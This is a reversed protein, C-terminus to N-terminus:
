LAEMQSLTRVLVLNRHRGVITYLRDFGYRWCCLWLLECAITAKSVDKTM